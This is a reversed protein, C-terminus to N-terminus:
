LKLPHYDFTFQYRLPKANIQESREPGPICVPDIFINDIMLLNVSGLLAFQQKDRKIYEIQNFPANLAKLVSVPLICIM